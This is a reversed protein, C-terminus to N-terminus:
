ACDDEPPEPGMEILPLDDVEGRAIKEIAEEAAEPTAFPGCYSDTDVEVYWGAENVGSPTDAWFEAADLWVVRM